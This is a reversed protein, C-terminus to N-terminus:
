PLDAADDLLLQAHRRDLQQERATQEPGFLEEGFGLQRHGIHSKGATKRAQAAKVVCKANAVSHRWGSKAFFGTLVRGGDVVCSSRGQLEGVARGVVPRTQEGKEFSAFEFAHFPHGIIKVRASNM